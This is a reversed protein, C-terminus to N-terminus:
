GSFKRSRYAVPHLQEEADSQSLCSGLAQDSADTKLIIKREPNFSALIPASIFKKKFKKFAERQECEWHFSQEKKTMKTLPTCIQSYGQIFRQYFNAFGLFAQVEKINKPEPWKKIAKVKEKDMQIGDTTIISGLFKITKVHSKCKDPQLRIDAEQLAKFVKKVVQIHKKLTSKTYILINKLYATVFIDLYKCIIINILAQFTAPANTLGFPMVTYKYHGYRTQFATKWEEGEKMQILNFAGKINLATFWQSGQIRDQLELILPLPYWNKVTIANLQKDKNPERKKKKKKKSQTANAQKKGKCVKALHGFKECNYCKHTEKWPSQNRKKTTDLEMPVMGYRNKKSSKQYRDKKGFNYTGKKELEREYQRDDIRIALTIRLQLQSPWNVQAINDKVRDKLRKYFQAVLSVAEWQTQAAVQQFKSAYNAASGTQWLSQMMREALHKKDFNGFVQRLKNKFNSYNQTVEVTDNDKKDPKNNLFDTIFSNFWELAPGRLYTSAFLVKHKDTPFREANFWLIIGSSLFISM